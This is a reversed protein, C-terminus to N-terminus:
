VTRLWYLELNAQLWDQNITSDHSGGFSFGSPFDWALFYTKSMNQDINSSIINKTQAQNTENTWKLEFVCECKDVYNSYIHLTHTHTVWKMYSSDHLLFFLLLCLLLFYFFYVRLCLSIGFVSFSFNIPETKGITCLACYRRPTQHINFSNYASQNSLGTSTAQFEDRTFLYWSFQIFCNYQIIRFLFADVVVVFLSLSKKRWRNEKRWMWQFM